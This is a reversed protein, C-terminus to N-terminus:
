RLGAHGGYAGNYAGGHPGPGTLNDIHSGGPKGARPDGTCNGNAAWASFDFFKRVANSVDEFGGLLNTNNSNPPAMNQNQYGPQRNSAAHNMRNWNNVNNHTNFLPNQPGKPPMTDMPPYNNGQAGVNSGWRANDMPRNGPKNAVAGWNDRDEQRPGGFEFSAGVGGCRTPPQPPAEIRDVDQRPQCPGPRDNRDQHKQSPHPPPPPPLDLDRSHNRGSASAERGTNANVSAKALSTAPVYDGKQPASAGCIMCSREKESCPPCLTFETYSTQLSVRCNKCERERPEGKTRKESSDHNCCFRPAVPPAPAQPVVRQVREYYYEEEEDKEEPKMANRMAKMPNFAINLAINSAKVEIGGMWGPTISIQGIVGDSFDFPTDEMAENIAKDKLKLNNLVIPMRSCDVRDLGVAYDGFQEQLVKRLAAEM